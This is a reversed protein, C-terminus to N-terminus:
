PHGSGGLFVVLLGPCSHQLFAGCCHLLTGICSFVIVEKVIKEHCIHAPDEKATNCHCKAQVIYLVTQLILILINPIGTLLFSTVIEGFVHGILILVFLTTWQDMKGRVTRPQKGNIDAVTETTSEYIAQNTTKDM